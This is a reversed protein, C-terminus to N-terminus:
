FRGRDDEILETIQAACDPCIGNVLRPLRESDLLNLRTVAREIEMWEMPTALAQKCWTCVVLHGSRDGQTPDLLRLRDRSESELVRCALELRHGPRQSIELDMHRRADPSDCRFKISLPGHGARVRRFLMEYLQRVDDGDIYDALPQGILAQWTLEPAGNDSAFALWEPSLFIIRDQEDLRYVYRPGERAERARPAPRKQPSRKM